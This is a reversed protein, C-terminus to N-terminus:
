DLRGCEWVINDAGIATLMEKIKSVHPTWSGEGQWPSSPKMFYWKDCYRFLMGEGIVCGGKDGTERALISWTNQIDILEQPIPRGYQRDEGWSFRIVCDDYRDPIAETNVAM